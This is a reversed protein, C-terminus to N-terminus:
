KIPHCNGRVEKLLDDIYLLQTLNVYVAVFVQLTMRDNSQTLIHHIVLSHTLSVLDLENVLLWKM